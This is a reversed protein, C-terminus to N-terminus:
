KSEEGEIAATVANVLDNDFLDREVIIGDPGILMICPIGNIGYLDTPIKQANIIQNWTIGDEEIAKLTNDPEDWVAVGVVNLGKDSYKNYLEKIVKIERRCPGCWSAWFDVLTYEGPKVLDSLKTTNGNYEVSFDVYEKGKSTNEKAELSSLMKQIRDYKKLSPHSEILEKAQAPEMIMAQDLFLYYGIPNDINAEMTANTISDAREIYLSYISDREAQTAADTLLPSYYDRLEVQTNFYNNSLTNLKGGTLTNDAYSMEAPELIFMGCRNGDVILRVLTPTSITDAFIAQNATILASDIVENTDFNTLYAVKGEYDDDFSATLKYNNDTSNCATLAAIAGAIFLKTKM